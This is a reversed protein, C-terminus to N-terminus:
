GCSCLPAGPRPLAPRKLFGPDTRYSGTLVSAAAAGLHGAKVLRRSDEPCDAQKCDWVDVLLLV